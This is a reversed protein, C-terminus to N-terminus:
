NVSRKRSQRVLVPATFYRVGSHISAIGSDLACSVKGKLHTKSVRGPTDLYALHKLSCFAPIYATVTNTHSSTAIAVKTAEIPRDKSM